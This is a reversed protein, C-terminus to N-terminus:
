ISSAPPTTLPESRAPPRPPPRAEAPHANPFQSILPLSFRPTIQPLIIAPRYPPPHPTPTTSATTIPLCPSVALNRLLSVMPIAPNIHVGSGCHFKHNGSSIEHFDERQSPITQRLCPPKTLLSHITTHLSAPQSLHYYSFARRCTPSAQLSPYPYM